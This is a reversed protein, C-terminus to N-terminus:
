IDNENGSEKMLEEIIQALVAVGFEPNQDVNSQNLVNLLKSKLEPVKEQDNSHLTVVQEQEPLNPRTIGVRIQEGDISERQQLKEYSIVEFHRFKRTLQSLNIEFQAKDKDTWTVPPKNVLFTAISELWNNFELECDCIRLLFGVLQTDITVEAIPECINILERRLEEGKYELSFNLALQQEILTLLSPYAKKLESLVNRLGILFEETKPNNVHEIINPQYGLVKPLQYFLLTDPELADLVTKRLNKADKSLTQTKLTYKPLRAIFLMLPTVVTLLDPEETEIPQNLVELFKIFVSKRVDTMRFRKMEFKEPVRLLREFVPMTIEAIFSGNEYLAVETRHKLISACLLIPLPGSRIGFPKDMLRNYIETIPQRTMECDNLYDEIAKWIPMMKQVALLETDETEKPSFFGWSDSDQRHIGTNLLLSRYISMEPPHRTIGLYKKDPNELMHQILKRRATTITGSINRRNILENRLIPTECYVQECITSLFANREGDSKISRKEGKYYWLCANNNYQDFTSKLQKSVETEAELLRALLERRATGDSQLEPTNQQVWRLRVVELVAEQLLGISNPIAILVDEKDVKEAKNRLQEVEYKNTPLALLLLGDAEEFSKTLDLDFNEVDTYRVSFYRLTGKDFLHRRAVIPRTPIYLSLNRSVAVTQDVHTSADHLKGEIDIDSGEWIKYTDNYRRYTVISKEELETLATQFESTSFESNDVLVYHLLEKSAKLNSIVEGTIGLLGISKILKITLESPNNLRSIASEIESWKKSDKLIYLHSGMNIAIYDYLNALSFLPMKKVEYSNKLLFEQFGYPETSSLFAFLSRENQAFRRFIPGILLSVIPHLPLCNTLLQVFENRDLHQPIIESGLADNLNNISSVSKRNEIASGVIRLVQEIPETFPVDEFRGQVKAWEERQTKAARLAYMDFAQHLITMMLLPIEESRDAFEALTQLVFMDGQSPYQSAYELFKGLEDIILLIGKGEQKKIQRIASEFLTIIESSNPLIGKEINKQLSKIKPLPANTLSIGNFSTLGNKLGRLLAISIPAREGSILIPCFGTPVLDGNNNLKSLRQYLKSDSRKLLMQAQQTIPTHPNGLLNAAFLAFASKGSGYPGTLSWAKSSKAGELAQIVRELMERATVTVVYGEMSKDLAYFDRELHVSRRFRGKVQFYDSLPNNM